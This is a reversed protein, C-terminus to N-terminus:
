CGIKYFALRLTDDNQIDDFIVKGAYVFGNKNLLNRMPINNPHTDIRLQKCDQLAWDLSFSASGKVMGASAFAHIVGYTEANDPWNGEFITDYVPEHTIEYGFTAAIIKKESNEEVSYECVYQIGKEIKAIVSEESPWSKKGPSPLGWQSENGNEKMFQRAQEYIDMLQSLENIQAKRIAFM